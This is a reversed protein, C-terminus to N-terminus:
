RARKKVVARELETISVRVEAVLEGHLHHVSAIASRLGGKRLAAQWASAAARAEREAPTVNEPPGKKARIKEARQTIERATLADVSKGGIGTALVLQPVERAPTAAAYTIVAFAKELGLALAQDRTYADVIAILKRAQTPGMLGRKALLEDFSEYGIPVFLKKRSIERLAEGIEFFDETIRQKRRLILAILSEARTAGAHSKQAAKAALTRVASATTRKAPKSNTTTTPM